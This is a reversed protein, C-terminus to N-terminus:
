SGLVERAIRSILANDAASGFTAMMGKMVPGIGKPGSLGEAEVLATIAARLEDEGVQEPLYAELVVIEAEEAEALEARGADRYQTASERRQKVLRKVVLIFGDEDLEAGKDIQENKIATLLLRLTGLKEKEKARM